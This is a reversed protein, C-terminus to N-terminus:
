ARGKRPGNARATAAGVVARCTVREAEEAEETGTHKEHIGQYPLFSRVASLTQARKIANVAHTSGGARQPRTATAPTSATRKGPPGRAQVAGGRSQALPRTFFLVSRPRWTWGRLWLSMIVTGSRLIPPPAGPQASNQPLSQAAADLGPGRLRQMETTNYTHM